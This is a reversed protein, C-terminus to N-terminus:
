IYSVCLTLSYVDIAYLFFSNVHLRRALTTVKPLSDLYAARSGAKRESLLVAALRNHETALIRRAALAAAAPHEQLSTYTLERPVRLAVKATSTSM